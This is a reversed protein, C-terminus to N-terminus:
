NHHAAVSSRSPLEQAAAFLILLSRVGDVVADGSPRAELPLEPLDSGTKWASAANKGIFANLWERNQLADSIAKPERLRQLSVGCVNGESNVATVLEIAGFEGKVRGTLVAGIPTVEQYIRYLRLANEDGTPQRGLRQALELRLGSLIRTEIQYRTANTFFAKLDAEPERWPCLPAAQAPKLKSEFLTESSLSQNIRWAVLSTLVVAILGILFQRSM